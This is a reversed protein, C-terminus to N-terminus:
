RRCMRCNILLLFRQNGAKQYNEPDGVNILQAYYLLLRNKRSLLWRNMPSMFDEKTGFPCHNVLNQLVKTVQVLEESCAAGLIRVLVLNRRATRNIDNATLIGVSEPTIIAPNFYRLFIFSGLLYSKKDDPLEPFKSEAM